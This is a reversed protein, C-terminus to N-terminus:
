NWVWFPKQCNTPHLEFGTETFIVSVSEACCICAPRHAKHGDGNGWMIRNQLINSRFKWTITPMLVKTKFIRGRGFFFTKSQSGTSHWILSFLSSLPCSPFLHLDPNPKQRTHSHNWPQSVQKSTVVPKSSYPKSSNLNTISM